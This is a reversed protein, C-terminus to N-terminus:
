AKENIGKRLAELGRATEERRDAAPDFRVPAGATIRRTERDWRLPVFDLPEASVKRWFRDLLLFHFLRYHGHSLCSPATFHRGGHNQKAQM